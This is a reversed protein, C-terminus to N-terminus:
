RKRRKAKYRYSFNLSLASIQGADPGQVDQVVLTWFGKAPGGIFASLPQEPRFSGTIPASDGTNGPMTISNAFTDGFQVLSGSCSAAGSGYGDGSSNSSDDRSAALAIARGGPSVLFLVLDGDDTHPIRVGVSNIATVVGAQPRGKFKPVMVPIAVYTAPNPDTTGNLPGDPISVAVSVCHNFTKTRTKAGAPAAAGITVLMACCMCGLVAMRASRLRIM